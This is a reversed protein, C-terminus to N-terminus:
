NDRPTNRLTPMSTSITNGALGSMADHMLRTKRAAQYVPLDLCM